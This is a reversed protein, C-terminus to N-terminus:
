TVASTINSMCTALYEVVAFVLLQLMLLLLLQLQLQIVNRAKTVLQVVSVWAVRQVPRQREAAARVRLANQARLPRLVRGAAADGDDALHPASVAAQVM